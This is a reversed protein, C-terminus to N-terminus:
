RNREKSNPEDSTALPLTFNFHSGKGYESEVWIKGGYNEVIQKVLALGLGTGGREKILPNDLRSFPEFVRELDDKKIGIGNDIVSVQCWDGGRTAEVKFKGGDPSFKSANDVLNLLVQAIKGEDAYVLPLGEEIEVDLSQKRPTLIPMMTRTLSAIIKNLAVNESKFEVKGSEIRSLDLVGNILNLLHQSSTLVDNLCQRQEANVKGPVEDSMLESFGIIVNLPTRLEHSMNALFESKLQNAREVEMTKEILEQQQTVLEETLSQLEENQTDLQENREQLEQEARKRETIDQSLLLFQTKGGWLVDKPYVDLYRIQGDKRVISTEYKGTINQKLRRKEQRERLEVYSQPSYRKELPAARLEELNKCGFINLYAQNAYIIEGEESIILTGMPSSELSNHFNEESERLAKEAQKRETIDVWNSVYHNLKGNNEVPIGTIEIWFKEGNKKQYLAEFGKIGHQMAEELAATAEQWKKERWWPYPAKSGIAEKSSYGTLKEMAPNIYRISTDPNIVFIPNPSNSLLSSRFEEGERLAEEMQKRETIDRFIGRTAVVKGEDSRSNVNGEVTILRGDKAVFITEVNNVAEGSIVKQFIERCHSMSDPHIIDWLTLNTVEDESYGLMERWAKNVYLFRGDSTVSQILDNANEFLDRYREESEKLAKEVQKRETIENRLEGNVELLLKNTRQLNEVLRKNELSLRQQKLANAIATKMEEPNIPKVFYAYAGQNVADVATEVSAYGTMMIVAAEPNIERAQELIEMGDVDPLRIDTIVANFPSGRIVKLADIGKELGVVRYGADELIACLTTRTGIEDEVVMITADTSM